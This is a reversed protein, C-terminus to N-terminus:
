FAGYYGAYFSIVKFAVIIGMIIVGLPLAVTAMRHISSESAIEFHEAVREMTEDINGTQEGTQLMQVVMTDVEPVGVLVESLNGGKRLHPIASLLRRTIVANGTVGASLELARPMPLGASYGYALARMFKTLALKRVVPGFLPVRLKVADLTYRGQKAGIFAKYVIYVLAVPIAVVLATTTLSKAFVWIGAWLTGLIATVIAQSTAPILVVFVALVKPYFTERSVMQRLKYEREWYGAVMDLAEELRGTDEGVAIVGVTLESFEDPYRRLVESLRTGDPVRKAADTVAQKLRPYCRRERLVGLAEGLSMGAKIMTALERFLTGKQEVKVIFLM